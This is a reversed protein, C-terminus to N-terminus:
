STKDKNRGRVKTRSSVSSILYLHSLSSPVPFLQFLGSSLLGLELEACCRICVTAWAETCLQGPYESVCGPPARISFPPAHGQAMLPTKPEQGPFM